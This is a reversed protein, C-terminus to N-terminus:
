AMTELLHECHELVRYLEAKTAAITESLREIIVHLEKVDAM